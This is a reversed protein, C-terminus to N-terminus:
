SSFQFKAQLLSLYPVKWFAFLLPASWVTHTRLSTQAETTRLGRLCTKERRPGYLNNGCTRCRHCVAFTGNLNEINCKARLEKGALISQQYKRSCNPGLDPGVFHQAQVSDLSNLVRITNRFFKKSFMITKIVILLPCLMKFFLLLM